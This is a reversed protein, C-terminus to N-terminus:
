QRRHHDPIFRFHICKDTLSRPNLRERNAAKLIRKEIWGKIEKKLLSQKSLSIQMVPIRSLEVNLQQLFPEDNKHYWFLAHLLRLQNYKTQNVIRKTPNKIPDSNEKATAEFRQM